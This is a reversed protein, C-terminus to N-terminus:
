GREKRKEVLNQLYIVLKISLIGFVVGKIDVSELKIAAFLAVAWIALRFYYMMTANLKAANSDMTVSKQVSYALIIFNIFSSIFGVVVGVIIPISEKVFFFVVVSFIFNILFGYKVTRVFIDKLDKM